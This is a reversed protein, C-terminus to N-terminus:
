FNLTDGVWRVVGWEGQDAASVGDTGLYVVVRVGGVVSACSFYIFWRGIEGAEEEELSHPVSGM